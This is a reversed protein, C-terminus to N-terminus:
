YLRIFFRNLEIFEEILFNILNPYKHYMLCNKFELLIDIAKHIFDKFQLIAKKAERHIRYLYILVQKSQKLNIETQVM